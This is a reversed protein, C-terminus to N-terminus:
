RRSFWYHMTIGAPLVIGSTIESLGSGTFARLAPINSLQTRIEVKDVGEKKFHLLAFKVLEQGIGRRRCSKSVAILGISGIAAGLMNKSDRAIDCLVFGAAGGKRNRAIFLKRDPSSIAEGLWKYYMFDVKDKPYREDTVFRTDTFVGRVLDKLAPLDGKTAQTIITKTLVTGRCAERWNGSTSLTLQVDAVTFGAKELLRINNIDRIGTRCVIHAYGEESCDKIIEGIFCSMDEFRMKMSLREIRGIKLGFISSDWKLCCFLAYGVMSRGKRAIYLVCDKNLAFKKLATRKFYVSAPSNDDLLLARNIANKSPRQIKQIRM